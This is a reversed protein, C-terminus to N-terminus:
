IINQPGKWDRGNKIRHNPLETICELRSQVEVEVRGQLGSHLKWYQRWVSLLAGELSQRHTVKKKSLVTHADLAFFAIMHFPVSQFASSLLHIQSRLQSHGTRAPSNWTPSPLATVASIVLGTSKTLGKLIKDEIIKTPGYWSYQERRCNVYNQIWLWLHYSPFHLCHTDKNSQTTHLHQHLFWRPLATAAVATDWGLFSWHNHHTEFLLPSPHAEERSVPATKATTVVQKKWQWYSQWASMATVSFGEERAGPTRCCTEVVFAM